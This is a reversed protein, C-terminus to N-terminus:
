LPWYLWWLTGTTGLLALDFLPKTALFHTLVGMRQIESFLLGQALAFPVVFFFVGGLAWQWPHVLFAWTVLAVACVLTANGLVALWIPWHSPHSGRVLIRAMYSTLMVLSAGALLLYTAAM